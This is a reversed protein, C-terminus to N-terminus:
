ASTRAIFDATVGEEALGIAINCADDTVVSVSFYTEFAFPKGATCRAIVSTADGYQVSTQNDGTGTTALEVVGLRNTALIAATDDTTIIYRGGSAQWEHFDDFAYVYKSTHLAEPHKSMMRWLKASPGTGDGTSHRHQGM